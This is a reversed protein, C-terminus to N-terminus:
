SEFDYSTENTRGAADTIGITFMDVNYSSAPWNSGAKFVLAGGPLITANPFLLLVQAWPCPSRM